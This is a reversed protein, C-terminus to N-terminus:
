WRCTFRHYGRAGKGNFHPTTKPHSFKLHLQRWRVIKRALPRVRVLGAYSVTYIRGDESLTSYMVFFFVRTICHLNQKMFGDMNRPPLPPAVAADSVRSGISRLELHRILGPLQGSKLKKWKWIQSKSILFLHQPSPTEDGPHWGDFVFSSQRNSM